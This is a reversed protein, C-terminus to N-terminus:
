KQSPLVSKKAAMVKTKLTVHDKLFWELIGIQQDIVIIIPAWNIIARILILVTFLQKINKHFSHYIKESNKSWCFLM